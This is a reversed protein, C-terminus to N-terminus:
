DEVEVNWRRVGAHCAGQLEEEWRLVLELGRRVLEAARALEFKCNEFAYGGRVRGVGCSWLGGVVEAREGQLWAGGHIKARAGIAAGSALDHAEPHARHAVRAEVVELVGIRAALVNYM